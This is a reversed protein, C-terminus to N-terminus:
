YSDNNSYFSKQLHQQQEILFFRKIKDNTMLSDYFHLRDEQNDFSSIELFFDFINKQVENSLNENYISHDDVLPLNEQIEVLSILNEKALGKLIDLYRKFIPEYRTLKLKKFLMEITNRDYVNTFKDLYFIKMSLKANYWQLMELFETTLTQFMSCSYIIESSYDLHSKRFCSYFEIQLKKDINFHQQITNMFLTSIEQNTKYLIKYYVYSQHCNLSSRNENFLCQYFDEMFRKRMQSNILISDILEENPYTFDVSQYFMRQIISEYLIENTLNWRDEFYNLIDKFLMYRDYLFCICFYARISIIRPFREDCIEKLTKVVNGQIKKKIKMTKLIYNGYALLCNALIEERYDKWSLIVNELNTIFDFKKYYYLNNEEYQCVFTSEFAFAISKQIQQCQHNHLLQFIDKYLKLSSQDNTNFIKLKQILWHALISIFEINKNEIIQNHFYEQIFSQFKSSYDNILLLFSRHLGAFHKEVRQKELNLIWEFLKKDVIRISLKSSLYLNEQIEILIIKFINLNMSQCSLLCDIKNTLYTLNSTVFLPKIIDILNPIEEGHIFLELAAYEAFFHLDFDTRCPLWDRLFSYVDSRIFLCRSLYEIADSLFQQNRNHFQNTISQVIHVTLVNCNKDFIETPKSTIQLYQVDFTLEILYFFSLLSNLQPDFSTTEHFYNAFITSNFHVLKSLNNTRQTFGNLHSSLEVNNLQQLALFAIQQDNEMNDNLKEGIRNSIQEFLHDFLKLSTQCQIFLLTSILLSSNSLQNELELVLESRLQDQRNFHFIWPQKMNLLINLCIIKLIPDQIQNRISYIERSSVSSLFLHNNRHKCKHVRCQFQFLRALCISSTFLQLDRDSNSKDNEINLVRQREIDILKRLSKKSIYDTKWDDIFWKEEYYNDYFLMLGYNELHYQFLLPKLMPLIRHILPDRNYEIDLQILCEVLLVTLPLCENSNRPCLISTRYYLPQVSKKLFILLFLPNEQSIRFDISNDEYPFYYYDTNLNSITVFQEIDLFHFKHLANACAISFQKSEFDSRNIQQLFQEVLNQVKSSICSFADVLYEQEHRDYVLYYWIQQFRELVLPLAAYHAYKVYISSHSLSRLCILAIFTDVIETSTNTPCCEDVITEYHNILLNLKDFHSQDKNQFYFEIMPLVISSECHMWRPLFLFMPTGHVATQYGGCVSMIVSFILPHIDYGLNDAQLYLSLDKNVIQFPDNLILISKRLVQAISFEVFVNKMTKNLLMLQYQFSSRRKLTPFCQCFHQVSKEDILRLEIWEMIIEDSLKSFMKSLFTFCVISCQHEFLNDLILFVFSKLSPNQWSIYNEFLYLIGFPMSKNNTSKILLLIYERYDDSSRNLQIWDNILSFTQRFCPKDIISLIHKVIQEITSHQIVSLAVFYDRFSYSFGFVDLGKGVFMITSSVLLSLIEKSSQRLQNNNMSFGRQRLTLCCLQEADYADILNSSSNLSLYVSLNIQFDILLNESYKSQTKTWSKSLARVAYDYLNVRSESFFMTPSFTAFTCISSLLLPNSLLSKSDQFLEVSKSLNAAISDFFDEINENIQDYEKILTDKVSNMWTDIFKVIQSPNMLSIQYYKIFPGTISCFQYGVFRSTLIVQNGGFKNSPSVENLKTTFPDFQQHFLPQDFPSVCEPSRVYEDLFNTLLDLIQKRQEYQLTEDLGDFLILTHGHRVLERLINAENEHCYRQSFCTHEGIYDLITKQTQPHTLLWQCFEDIRIMIPIRVHENSYLLKKALSSTIWRLLTTKANGPHAFIVIWRDVELIEEISKSESECFIQNTERSPVFKNISGDPNREAVSNMDPLHNLLQENCNFDIRISQLKDVSTNSLFHDHNEISMEIEVKSHFSLCTELYNPLFDERGNLCENLSKRRGIQNEYKELKEEYQIRELLKRTHEPPHDVGADTYMISYIDDSWEDWIEFPILENANLYRNLHRVFLRIWDANFEDSSNLIEELNSPVDNLTDTDDEDFYKSSILRDVSAKLREIIDSM